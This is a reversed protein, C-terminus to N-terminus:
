RQGYYAKPGHKRYFHKNLLMADLPKVTPALSKTLSAMHAIEELIVANHAAQKANIGWTFPGHGAVLVAPMEEPNLRAFRRTISLGTNMEYENTIERSSLLDTIPVSGNFYDAHTTGLCPIELGAQAWATAYTSHTHVVGGITLFSRYLALHTQLDSSPKYSGEMIEGRLDTIVMDEPKMTEYPVGSPKIVVLGQKRDIGSANGFTYVALKRQFLEQNAEFVDQRLQELM